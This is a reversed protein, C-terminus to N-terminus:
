TRSFVLTWLSKSKNHLVRSSKLVNRILRKSYYGAMWQVEKGNGFDLIREIVYTAHRDLDITKPNVDWFLEQRFRIKPLSKRKEKKSSKM